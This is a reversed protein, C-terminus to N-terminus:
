NEFVVGCLILSCVEFVFLAFSFLLVKKEKEQIINEQRAHKTNQFFKAKKQQQM